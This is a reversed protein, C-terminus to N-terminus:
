EGKESPERSGSLDLQYEENLYESIRSFIREMRGKRDLADEQTYAESPIRLRQDDCARAIQSLKERETM